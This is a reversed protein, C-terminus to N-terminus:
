VRLAFMKVYAQHMAPIHTPGTIISLACVYVCVECV